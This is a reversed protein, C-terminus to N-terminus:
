RILWSIKAQLVDDSPLHRLMPLDLRPSITARANILADSTVGHTYVLFAASGPRFEWRAIFNLNWLRDSFATAASTAGPRLTADDQYARLDRFNWNAVLLQAFAQLSLQTSLAYAVRLTQNLQGMRRLGVIPTTGQTELYRQEGTERHFTLDLQFELAPTPKISQYVETNTTPAGGYWTSDMAVKVYWPRNAATDFAAQVYPINGTRLYKKVPDTFTRLERDDDVPLTLGGSGWLSVYNTFDTRGWTSFARQNTHGAQDRAALFDVGWSRNRTAGWPTDWQGTTAWYFRQEDGRSFAGLDNPDFHRTANIGQLELAWGSSWQQNFRLRERSGPLEAGRPGAETRIVTSEVVRSRDPSKYISDLAAVTAQRGLAGAERVQSAFAGVYTGRDDLTQLVRAVGYSTYPSIERNEATGSPLQVLGRAGEVGAALVGINLGSALKATYKAAGAIEAAAPRQLLTEGDNLTPDALAKGIRRSYFLSPGAVQFIEMGELFFPRKEQFFTEYTGLNLVAQDVEVQAFDPRATLDLQSYTSLSLHADVGARLKWGRDDHAQTTEYKRQLTAFPLWERRPTPQLGALGTLDPFRSAFANVGRPALEWYSTERFPGQDTRNFNVGWVQAGSGEKIRLQSLPIRMEVTWGDPDSSVASEWVADWSNDAASSDGSYLADRQVGAANVAFGWATRRDRLTDLYITFWDSSSDQDRRHLRKIVKAEGKPHGMRAGVYLYRDDYLIKVTTPLVAKAGFIPWTATFGTAARAERWAPEDLHGDLLIADRTRSAELGKTGPAGWLPLAATLVGLAWTFPFRM